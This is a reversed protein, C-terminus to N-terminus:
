FNEQALKLGRFLWEKTWRHILGVMKHSVSLFSKYHM